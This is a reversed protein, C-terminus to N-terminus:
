KLRAILTENLSVYEDRLNPSTAQRAAELSKQATAVAGAKDGMKELILAKRYDLYFAGPSAAIASDMWAAAKKLDLGNEFYYMAADRYVEPALKESGAMVAEIQPVLTSKVDVTLTVPVRTKEWTINLTASEDRIDNLSIDLTEIPSALTVPVAKIRAVDNKENYSYTGWQSMNKHIIVTWEKEGPITFLEYTGAAVETGNFKVPTSFSIKTATNAGTRWIHGYPLLGGFVKRGKAGPRAYNIQIDTLGIRQTVTATPSAQPFVLKPAAPPTQAFLGAVFCLGCTAFLGPRFSPIRM